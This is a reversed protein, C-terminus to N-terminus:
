ARHQLMWAVEVGSLMLRAPPASLLLLLLIPSGDGDLDMGGITEGGLSSSGGSEITYLADGSTLVGGNAIAAGDWVGVLLTTTPTLIHRGLQGVLQLSLIVTVSSTELRQSTLVLTGVGSIRTYRDGLSFTGGAAPLKLSTCMFRVAAWCVWWLIRYGGGDIDPLTAPEM